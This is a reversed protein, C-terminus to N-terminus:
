SEIWSSADHLQVDRAMMDIDSGRELSIHLLFEVPNDSMGVPDYVNMADEGDLLQSVFGLCGNEHISACDVGIGNLLIHVCGDVGQGVLEITAHLLVLFFGVVVAGQLSALGLTLDSSRVCSAAVAGTECNSM